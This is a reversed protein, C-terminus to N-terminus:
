ERNVPQKQSLFRVSACVIHKLLRHTNACASEGGEGPCIKLPIIKSISRVSTFEGDFIELAEVNLIFVLETGGARAKLETDSYFEM